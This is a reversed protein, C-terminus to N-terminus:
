KSMRKIVTEIKSYNFSKYKDLTLIQKKLNLGNDKLVEFGDDEFGYEYHQKWVKINLEATRCYVLRLRMIEFALKILLLEAEIAQLAKTCIYRGFEGCGEDSIQYISITGCFNNTKKDIIKLYLGDTKNGNVTQWARQSELTLPETSSLYQNIHPQNRLECILQADELSVSELITSYGEIVIKM